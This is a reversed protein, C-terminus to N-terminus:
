DDKRFAPLPTYADEIVTGSDTKMKLASLEWKKNTLLNETENLDDGDNKSCATLFLLFLMAKFANVTVARM